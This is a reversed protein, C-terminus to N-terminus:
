APPGFAPSGTCTLECDEESPRCLSMSRRKNKEDFSSAAGAPEVGQTLAGPGRLVVLTATQPDIRADRVERAESRAIDRAIEGVAGDLATGRIGITAVSSSVTANNQRNPQGSMFRFAGRAVTAAASRGQAPDYVFRDIRLAANAGISFTSRDLLLIQMQSAKGTQILDALAIRQRVAVPSPRTIRANSLKVDGAVAAAVGVPPPAPQASAGSGAALVAAATVATLIRPSPRATTAM